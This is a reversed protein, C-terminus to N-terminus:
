GWQEAAPLVYQRLFRSAYQPHIMSRQVQNRATEIKREEVFEIPEFLMNNKPKYNIFWYQTPKKHWDGDRRRDYDIIAPKLPWYRTLYHQSSYPNEIILPLNKRTCILVLKSILQYMANLENNLKMSCELKKEDSWNKVAYGEGRMNLIIQDEFRVCPFFAIIMDDPEIEDFISRGGRMRKKSKQSYTM